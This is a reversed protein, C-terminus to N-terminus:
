VNGPPNKGTDCGGDCIDRVAHEPFFLDVRGRLRVVLDHVIVQGPREYGGNDLPEKIATTSFNGHIFGKIPDLPFGEVLIKDVFCKFPILCFIECFDRNFDNVPLVLGPCIKGAARATTHYRFFDTVCKYKMEEDVPAEGTGPLRKVACRWPSLKGSNDQDFVRDGEPSYKHQFHCVLGDGKIPQFDITAEAQEGPFEPNCDFM